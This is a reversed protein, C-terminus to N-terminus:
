QPPKRLQQKLEQEGGPTFPRIQRNTIPAQKEVYNLNKNDAENSKIAIRKATFNAKPVVHTEFWPYELLKMDTVDKTDANQLKLDGKPLEANPLDATPQAITSLQADGFTVTKDSVDAKKNPDIPKLVQANLRPAPCLALAVALLTFNLLKMDNGGTPATVASELAVELTGLSRKSVLAFVLLSKNCIVAHLLDSQLNFVVLFGAPQHCYQSAGFPPPPM